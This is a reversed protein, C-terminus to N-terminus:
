ENELQDYTAGCSCVYTVNVKGNGVPYSGVRTWSHTHDAM